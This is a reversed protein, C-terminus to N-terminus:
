FPSSFDSISDKKVLRSDARIFAQNRFFLRYLVSFPTFFLFYFIFLLIQSNILGIKVLLMKQWSRIKGSLLSLMLLFIGGYYWPANGGVGYIIISLM